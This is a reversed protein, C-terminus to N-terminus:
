DLCGKRGVWSIWVALVLLPFRLCVKERRVKIEDVEGEMGDLEKGGREVEERQVEAERKKGKLSDDAKRVKDV